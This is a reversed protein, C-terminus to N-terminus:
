ENLEPPVEAVYTRGHGLGALSQLRWVHRHSERGRQVRLRGLTVSLGQQVRKGTSHICRASSSASIALIM